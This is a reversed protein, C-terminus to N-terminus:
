NGNSITIERPGIQLLETVDYHGQAAAFELPTANRSDRTNPYANGQQLLLHVIETHGCEAARSLPTRREYDLCDVVAPPVRQLILQVCDAYGKIAAIHLATKGSMDCYALTADNELLLATTEINQLFVATYLANGFFMDEHDINAGKALLMKILDVDNEYAAAALARELAGKPPHSRKSRLRLKRAMRSDTLHVLAAGCLSKIYSRRLVDQGNQTEHPLNAVICDATSRVANVLGCERFSNRLSLEITVRTMFTPYLQLFFFLGPSTDSIVREVFVALVHADFRRCVYRLGLLARLLRLEEDHEFEQVIDGCMGEFRISNLARQFILRWIENPLYTTGSM